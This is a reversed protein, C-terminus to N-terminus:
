EIYEVTDNDVVFSGISYDDSDTTSITDTDSLTESDANIDEEDSSIESESGSEYVVRCMDDRDYMQVTETKDVLSSTIEFRQNKPAEGPNILIVGLDKWAEEYNSNNKAIQIIQIDTKDIYEVDRDYKYLSQNCKLLHFVIYHQFSEDVKECFRINDDLKYVFLDGNIIDSM